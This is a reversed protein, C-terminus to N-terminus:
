CGVDDSGAKTRYVGAQGDLASCLVICISSHGKSILRLILWFVFRHSGFVVAERAFNMRVTSM